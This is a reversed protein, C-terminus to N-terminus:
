NKIVKIIEKYDNANLELIYSGRELRSLDISQSQSKMRESLVLSGDMAYVNLISESVLQDLEVHLVDSTPNPYVKMHKAVIENLGVCGDVNVVMDDTNTCGLSDTVTITFTHAGVGLTAGDATVSQTTETTSWVYGSFGSGADLVASENVCFTLDAGLNVVPAPNESIVINSSDSCGDTNTVVVEYSGAGM